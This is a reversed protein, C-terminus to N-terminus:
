KQAQSLANQVAEIIGDSTRTAGSVADVNASQSKIIEDPVISTAQDSYRPTENSSVIQIDSIKGNKVTVSVKLGPRFGNGIGEYIGDKYKKQAKGTESSGNQYNGNATVNANNQPLVSLNKSISNGLIGNFSYLGAFVTIAIAGTLAPNVDESCISVRANRRPCVNVCKFCNICDGNRVKDTNYLKVGMPCNITCYNCNGCNARPKKISILRLHSVLSFIAGLPCLYRCFFREIFASGAALIGLIIFGAALKHAASPFQSIQAFADWPNFSAFSTNGLTWVEVVIFILVIYKLYKLMLDLKENVHLKRKFFKESVIYIYDNLAGFACFWGCFFRGLLITFIVIAIAEILHPFSSYFNFNGRIVMQYIQKIESFTLVFLGPFIILFVLQVINRVIQMLMINKKM